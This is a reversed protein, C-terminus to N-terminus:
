VPKLGGWHDRQSWSDPRRHKEHKLYHRYDEILESREPSLLNWKQLFQELEDPCAIRDIGGGRLAQWEKRCEPSNTDINRNGGLIYHMYDFAVYRHLDALTKRKMEEPLRITELVSIVDAIVESKLRDPIGGWRPGGEAAVIVARALSATLAQVDALAVEVKQIKRRWEIGDKSAKFYNIDPHAILLLLVALGGAVLAATLNNLFFFTISCGILLFSSAVFLVYQRSTEAMMSHETPLAQLTYDCKSTAHEWQQQGISVSPSIRPSFWFVLVTVQKRATALRGSERGAFDSIMPRDSKHRAGSAARAAPTNAPARHRAARASTNPARAVTCIARAASLFASSLPVTVQKTVQKQTPVSARDSPSGGSDNM